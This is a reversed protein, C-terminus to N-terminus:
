ACQFPLRSLFRSFAPHVVQPLVHQEQQLAVLIVVLDARTITNTPRHGNPKVHLQLHQFPLRGERNIFVQVLFHHPTMM